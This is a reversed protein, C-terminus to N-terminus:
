RGQRQMRERIMPEYKKKLEEQLAPNKMVEQFRLGEKELIEKIMEGYIGPPPQFQPKEMKPPAGKEKNENRNDRREPSPGVNPKATGGRPVWESLRLIIEEDDKKLKATYDTIEEVKYGGAITEGVGVYFGEPSGQRQILVKKEGTFRVVGCLVFSPGPKKFTWGLPRFLNKQIIIEYNSPLGEKKQEKKRNENKKAKQKAPKSQEKNGFIENRLKPDKMMKRVKDQLDADTKLKELDIGKKQLFERAQPSLNNIFKEAEIRSRIKPDQMIERVKKQLEPNTKLEELDIGKEALIERAIPPLNNIFKEAQEQSAGDEANLIFIIISM